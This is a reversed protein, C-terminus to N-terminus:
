GARGEPDIDVRPAAAGGGAHQSRLGARSAAARRGRHGRGTSAAVTSTVMSSAAAESPEAASAAHGAGAAQAAAQVHATSATSATSLALALSCRHHPAATANFAVTYVRRSRRLCACTLPRGAKRNPPLLQPDPAPLPRPMGTATADPITGTRPPPRPCHHRGSTLGFLYTDM